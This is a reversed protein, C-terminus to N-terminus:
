ADWEVAAFDGDVVAAAEALTDFGNREFDYQTVPDGNTLAFFRGDSAEYLAIRADGTRANDTVERFRIEASYSAAVFASGLDSVTLPYARRRLADEIRPVLMSSDVWGLDQGRFLLRDPDHPRVTVMLVEPRGEDEYVDFVSQGSACRGYRVTKGLASAQATISDATLINEM